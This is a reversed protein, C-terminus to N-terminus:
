LKKVRFTTKDGGGDGDGGNGSGGVHGGSGGGKSLAVLLKTNQEMVLQFQKRQADLNNRLLTVQDTITTPAAPAPTDKAMYDRLAALSEELSEVYLDRTLNSATTIVSNMEDDDNLGLGFDNDTMNRSVLKPELVSSRHNRLPFRSLENQRRAPLLTCSHSPYSHLSSSQSESPFEVDMLLIM